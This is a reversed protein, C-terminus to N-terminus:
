QGTNGTEAMFVDGATIRRTEGGPTELILAGTDDLEKFTGDLREQELRVTIPAGLGYARRLWARRVPAFGLNRFTVFGALFRLCFSELFRRAADQYIEEISGGPGNYVAGEASLSTAPFETEEPCGAINVGLGIIVWDVLDAEQAETELLIGAAKRGEVLIDNPWKCNVMTGKPLVAAIAEAAASATVFGLQMTKELSLGPRLLLSCYLNGPESVWERGRRGRGATQEAAWIVDIGGLRLRPGPSLDPELADAMRRAEAMTSDIQDHFVARFPSPFDPVSTM